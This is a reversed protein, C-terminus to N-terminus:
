RKIILESYIDRTLKALPRKGLNGIRIDNMYIISLMDEKTPFMQPFQNMLEDIREETYIHNNWVIDRVYDKHNDYFDKLHLRKNQREIKEKKGPSADDMNLELKFDNTEGKIYKIDNGKITFRVEDGFEEDMPYLIPTEYTDLTSKAQNCISCCPVLNFISLALYPYKSKPYFHDFQPRVKNNDLTFIYHRNCYPCVTVNEIRMIEYACKRASFADYRFLNDTLVKSRTESFRGFTSIYRMMQKKDALLLSEVNNKQIKGDEYYFFNNLKQYTANGKLLSRISSTDLLKFIGKKANRMDKLYIKKITEINDSSLQIKIM